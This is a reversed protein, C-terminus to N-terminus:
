FAFVGEFFTKIKYWIWEFTRDITEIEGNVEGASAMLGDGEITSGVVEGNILTIDGNVAGEILLDGNKVLLDGEVTVGEPVIVTNGEINLNEEKSVILETDQNWSSFLSGTMLFFFIAAATVVPHAKFWRRYRVRKKEQPLRDMVGRTFDEPVEVSETSKILTITKKLEHFHEQCTECGELHSRLATEEETTMDGDLYQHMLKVAEGHCKM